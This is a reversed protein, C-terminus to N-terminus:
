IRHLLCFFGMLMANRQMRQFKYNFHHNKLTKNTYCIFIVFTVANLHCFISLWFSHTQKPCQLMCHNKLSACRECQRVIFWEFFSNIWVICKNNQEKKLMEEIEILGNKPTTQKHFQASHRDNIYRQVSSIFFFLFMRM